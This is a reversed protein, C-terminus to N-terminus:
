TPAAPAPASSTAAGAGASDPLSQWSQLGPLAAAPASPAHAADDCENSILVYRRVGLLTHYHMWDRLNPTEFRLVVVLVLSRTPDASRTPCGVTAECQRM